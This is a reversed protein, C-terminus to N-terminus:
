EEEAQVATIIEQARLLARRKKELFEPPAGQHTAPPAFRRLEDATFGIRQFEDEPLLACGGAVADEALALPLDVAQGFQDLRAVDGIESYTGLFRYTM